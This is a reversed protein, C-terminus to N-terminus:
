SEIFSNSQAEVVPISPAGVGVLTELRQATHHPNINRVEIFSDSQNEVIPISPNAIGILTELRQETHHPSLDKISLQAPEHDLLTAMLLIPLANM